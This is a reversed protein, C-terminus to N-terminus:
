FVILIGIFIIIMIQYRAEVFIFGVWTQLCMMLILYMAMDYNKDLIDYATQIHEYANCEVMEATPSLWGLKIKNM